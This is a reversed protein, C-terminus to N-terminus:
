EALLSMSVLMENVRQVFAAPDELHGGESLLAQDFLVLVWDNFKADHTEAKFVNSLRINPNIEMIPKISPVHRRASKLLRELSADMGRSDAM